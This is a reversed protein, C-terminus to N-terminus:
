RHEWVFNQLGHSEYFRTEWGNKVTTVEIKEIEKHKPICRSFETKIDENRIGYINSCVESRKRQQTIQRGNKIDLSYLTPHYSSNFHNSLFHDHGFGPVTGDNTQFSQHFNLLETV